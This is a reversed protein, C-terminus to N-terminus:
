RKMIINNKILVDEIDENFKIVLYNINHKECYEKKISDRLQTLKLTMEGGYFEVPKYHQEGNYEIVLNFDPLFFDCYLSEKYKLDPFTKQKEFSVKNITLLNAILEEGFSRLCGCSKTEGNKLHNAQVIVNTAGCDCTCSCLTRKNKGPNIMENVVLHFFRQGTLNERELSACQNCYPTKRTKLHNSQILFDKKCLSCECIWKKHRGAGGSNSDLGKVKIGNIIKGTFDEYPRPM